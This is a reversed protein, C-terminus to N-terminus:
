PLVTKLVAFVVGAVGVLQVLFLGALWRVHAIMEHRFESRLRVNGLVIESRLAGMERAFDERTVLSVDSM